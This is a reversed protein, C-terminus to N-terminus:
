GAVIIQNDVQKVGKIGRVLREVQTKLSDSKVTGILTVKGNIVTATIGLTSLTTDEALKKDIAAQITSDDNATTETGGGAPPSV